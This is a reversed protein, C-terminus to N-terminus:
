VGCVYDWVGPSLLLAKLMAIRRRRIARAHSAMLAGRAAKERAQRSEQRLAGVHKQQAAAALAAVVTLVRSRLVRAYLRLLLWVVVDAVVPSNGLAIWPAWVGGGAAAVASTRGPQLQCLGMLRPFTCAPGIGGGSGGGGGASPAALSCPLAWSGGLLLEWPAQFLGELLLVLLNFHVLRSFLDGGAGGPYTLEQRRRFMLLCHALYGARLLDRQLATLAVLAVLLLDASHRIQASSRAPYYM